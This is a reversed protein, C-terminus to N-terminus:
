YKRSYVKTKQAIELLLPTFELVQAFIEELNAKKYEHVIENRLDKIQRIQDIDEFLGRKHARNIIDIASGKDEFEVADLSRFVKNILLDATRGFRSTLAELLDFEDPTFHKKNKLVKCKGFSRELWVISEDLHNIAEGLSKLYDSQNM